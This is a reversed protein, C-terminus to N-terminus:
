FVIHELSKSTPRAKAMQRGERLEINRKLSMLFKSEIQPSVEGIPLRQGAMKKRVLCDDDRNLAQSLNETSQNQISPIDLDSKYNTPILFMSKPRLSDEKQQRQQYARSPSPSNYKKNVRAPKAKEFQHLPAHGSTLKDFYELTNIRHLPKQGDIKDHTDTKQNDDYDPVPIVETTTKFDSNIAIAPASGRRLESRKRAQDSPNVKKEEIRQSFEHNSSKKNKPHRLASAESGRRVSPDYQPPISLHHQKSHDYLNGHSGGRPQKEEPTTLETFKSIRQKVNKKEKTQNRRDSKNLQPESCMIVPSPTAKNNSNHQRNDTQASKVAPRPSPKQQDPDRGEHTPREQQPPQRQKHGPQRSQGTSKEQTSPIDTHVSIGAASSFNNDYESSRVPGRHNNPSQRYADDSGTLKNGRPLDLRQNTPDRRRNHKPSTQPSAKPSSSHAGM